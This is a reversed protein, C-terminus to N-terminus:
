GQRRIREWNTNVFNQMERATRDVWGAPAQPSHGQALPEAYPLNNHVSYYNGLKEQGAQYGISIRRELSPEKPPSTSNRYAGTAPQQEGGDYGPASNEGIAWSARFRGTDVPSQLKLRTEAEFVTVRLLKELQDGMYNGIDRIPLNSM